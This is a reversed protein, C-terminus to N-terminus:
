EQNNGSKATSDLAQFIDADERAMIENRAKQVARDILNFRRRKIDSIHVTPNKFIEFTPVTIRQGTIYSGKERLKGRKNIELHDHKFKSAEISIPWRRPISHYDLSRRVFSIPRAKTTLKGCRNIELHDHKFKSDGLIVASVDIDRDYSPLAGQPLQQIALAKRAIAHDNLSRRIPAAMSQALARRGGPTKIYRAIIGDEPGIKSQNDIIFPQRM